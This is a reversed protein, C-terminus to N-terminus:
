DIFAHLGSRGHQFLVLRLLSCQAIARRILDVIQLIFAELHMFSGVLLAARAFIRMQLHVDIILVAHVLTAGTRVISRPSTPMVVVSKLIHGVLPAVGPLAYWLTLMVVFLSLDCMRMLASPVTDIEIMLIAILVKFLLNAFVRISEILLNTM